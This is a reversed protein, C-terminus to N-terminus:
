QWKMKSMLRIFSPNDFMEDSFGPDGDEIRVQAFGSRQVVIYGIYDALGLGRAVDFHVADRSPWVWHTRGDTVGRMEENDEVLLKFQDPSPNKFVNVPGSITTDVTERAEYIEKFHVNPFDLVLTLLQRMPVDFQIVDLLQNPKTNMAALWRHHGDLIYGDMSALLPKKKKANPGVYKNLAKIVGNESFEGQTPKLDKAPIQRQKSEIGNSKMYQILQEYYKKKVQPMNQRKIGFTDRPNPIWIKVENVDERSASRPNITTKTRGKSPVAILRVDGLEEYHGYVEYDATTLVDDDDVYVHAPEREGDFDYAYVFVSPDQSLKKWVSKSGATQSEDSILMIKLNVIAFKYLQFGFGMGQIEKRLSSLVTYGAEINRSRILELSGLLRKEDQDMMVVTFDGGFNDVLYVPYGEVDGVPKANKTKKWQSGWFDKTMNIDMVEGIEDEAVPEQYDKHTFYFKDDRGVETQEVSYGLDRIARAIYKIIKQYLAGKGQGKHGGFYFQMPEYEQLWEKIIAIVTSFVAFENGTKTNNFSREGGESRQQSFSIEWSEQWGKKDSQDYAEFAVAYSYIGIEFNAYHETQGHSEWEWTEPADFLENLQTENITRRFIFETEDSRNDDTQHSYGLGKISKALYGVMKKYLKEKGLGKDGEFIFLEPKVKKIWEKIIAIVTAFVVFENGTGTNGFEVSGQDLLFAIEWVDQHKKSSSFYDTSWKDFGVQYRQKGIQFTAGMSNSTKSNWKWKAPSDFLENLKEQEVTFEPDRTKFNKKRMVTKSVLTLNGQHDLDLVFPVNVDTKMDRFVAEGHAGLDTIKTGYRNYELQFLRALEQLTIQQKNRIDNVRDLFHRSFEVDLGLKAYLKDVYYELKDLDGQTIESAQVGERLWAWSSM